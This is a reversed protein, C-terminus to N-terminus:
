LDGQGRTRSKESSFGEPYRKKLKEINAQLIDELFKRFPIHTVGSGDYLSFAISHEDAAAFRNLLDKILLFLGM